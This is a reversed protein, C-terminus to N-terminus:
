KDVGGEERLLDYPQAEPKATWTECSDREATVPDFNTKHCRLHGDKRISYACNVCWKRQAGTRRNWKDLADHPDWNWQIYLGCTSCGVWGHSHPTNVTKVQGPGGCCPCERAKYRVVLAM